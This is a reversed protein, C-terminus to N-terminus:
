STKNLKGDTAPPNHFKEVVYYGRRKTVTEIDTQEHGAQVLFQRENNHLHDFEELSIPIETRCNEDSCECYFNLTLNIRSAQDLVQKALHVVEENRQKFIVENEARRKQSKSFPSM